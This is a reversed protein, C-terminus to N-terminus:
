CFKDGDTRSLWMQPQLKLWQGGTKAPNPIHVPGGFTESAGFGLDDLMVLVVNPAGEPAEIPPHLLNDDAESNVYTDTITGHFDPDPLPLDQAMGPPVATGQLLSLAITFVAVLKRISTLSHKSFM